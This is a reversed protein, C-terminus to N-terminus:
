LRGWDALLRARMIAGEPDAEGHDDRAHGLEAEWIEEPTDWTQRWGCGDALLSCVTVLATPPAEHPAMVGRYNTGPAVIRGEVERAVPVLGANERVALAVLEGFEPDSYVPVHGRRCTFDELSYVDCHGPRSGALAHVGPMVLISRADVGCPDDLIYDRWAILHRDDPYPRDYAGSVRGGKQLYGILWTIYTTRSCPAFTHSPWPATM